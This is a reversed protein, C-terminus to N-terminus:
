FNINVNFSISGVPGFNNSRPLTIQPVLSIDLIKRYLNHSLGLSFTYAQLCYQPKNNSSLFFGYSLSSKKNLSQGLAAGNVVSYLHSNNEYEGENILSLSWIKSLTFNLNIGQFIGTGQDGNAFFELKPHLEFGKQDAVSEFALSHSVKIPDQLDVRPRFSTRVNGLKKFLGVTAGYNKKKPAQALHTDKVGREKSEDYSTFKLNWYHEVNPLRLNIGINSVNIVPQREVAYTSNTVTVNTENPLRTLKKGGALYLDMKEAVSDFWESVEINKEILKDEVSQTDQDVPKPEVGPLAAAQFVTGFIVMLVGFHSSWRGVLLNALKKSFSISQIKQTM